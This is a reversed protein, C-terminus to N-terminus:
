CARKRTRTPFACSSPTRGFSRRWPRRISGPSCPSRSHRPTSSVSSSRTSSRSANRGMPWPRSSPPSTASPWWPCGGYTHPKWDEVAAITDGKANLTAKRTQDQTVQWLFPAGDEGVLQIVAEAVGGPAIVAALVADADVDRLVFRKGNTDVLVYAHREVLATRTRGRLFRDLPTGFGDCDAIFEDGRPDTGTRDVEARFVHATYHDVIHRVLSPAKAREKRTKWRGESELSYKPVIHAGNGDTGEIFEPGNRDAMRWYARERSARKWAETALDALPMRPQLDITM